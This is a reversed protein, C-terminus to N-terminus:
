REPLLPGRTHSPGSQLGLSLSCRAAAALKHVDFGIQVYGYLRVFWANNLKRAQTRYGGPLGNKFIYDGMQAVDRCSQLEADRIPGEGAIQIARRPHRVKDQQSRYINNKRRPRLVHRRVGARRLSNTHFLLRIPTDNRSNGKKLAASVPERNEQTNRGTEYQLPDLAECGYRRSHKETSHVIKQVVFKWAIGCVTLPLLILSKM